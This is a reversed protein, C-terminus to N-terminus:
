RNSLNQIKSIKGFDVQTPKKSNVFNIRGIWHKFKIEIQGDSISQRCYSNTVRMVILKLALYSNLDVYVSYSVIQLFQMDAVEDWQVCHRRVVCIWNIGDITRLANMVLIITWQRKNLHFQLKNLYSSIWRGFICIDIFSNQVTELISLFFFCFLNFVRCLYTFTICNSLFTVWIWLWLSTILTNCCYKMNEDKTLSGLGCLRYWIHDSWISAAFRISFIFNLHWCKLQFAFSKILVVLHAFFFWRLAACWSSCQFFELLTDRVFHCLNDPSFHFPFPPISSIHMDYTGHTLDM